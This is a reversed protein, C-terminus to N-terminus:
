VSRGPELVSSVSPRDTGHDRGLGFRRPTEARMILATVMSTTSAAHASDARRCSTDGTNRGEGTATHFLNM